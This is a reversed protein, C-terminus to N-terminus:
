VSAHATALLETSAPRSLWPKGCSCGGQKVVTLTGETTEIYTKNPSPSKVEDDDTRLLTTQTRDTVVVVVEDDYVVRVNSGSVPGGVTAPKIVNM